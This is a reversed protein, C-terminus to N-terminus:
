QVKHTSAGEWTKQVDTGDDMFHFSWIKPKQMEGAESKTLCTM